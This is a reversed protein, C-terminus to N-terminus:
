MPYPIDSKTFVARNQSHPVSVMQHCSNAIESDRQKMNVAMRANGTGQTEKSGLGIQGQSQNKIGELNSFSVARPQTRRLQMWRLIQRPTGPYGLAKIERWLQMGNECGAQQRKELYPLYPTLISAGPKRRKREPFSTAYYNKGVTERHLDLARAIQAINYGDRRLQQIAEYRELRRERSSRSQAKESNTRPFATRQSPFLHAQEPKIPVPELRAYTTALFREVM